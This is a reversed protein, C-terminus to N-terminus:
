IKKKIDNLIHLPKHTKTVQHNLPGPEKRNGSQSVRRYGRARSYGVDLLCFSFHLLPIPNRGRLRRSESSTCISGKLYISKFLDCCRDLNLRDPFCSGRIHWQEDVLYKNLSLLDKLVSKQNRQSYLYRM